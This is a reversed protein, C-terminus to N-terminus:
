PDVGTAMRDDRHDSRGTARDTVVSGSDNARFDRRYVRPPIITAFRANKLLICVLIEYFLHSRATSMFKYKGTFIIVVTESLSNFGCSRSPSFPFLFLLFKLIQTVLVRFKSHAHSFLHGAYSDHFQQSITCNRFSLEFITDHKIM